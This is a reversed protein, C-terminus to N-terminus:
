GGNIAIMESYTVFTYGEAALKPVLLEVADASTDYIDHFLIVPNATLTNMVHQYTSQGNRFKWDLSDVSWLAIKMNTNSAITDNYSGYPPRLFSPSKGIVNKISSSASNINQLASTLDLQVLNPHSYSHNAVEHGAADIKKLMDPNADVKSGLVFWTGKANYKSLVDLIKKTSGYGPGDDFTLAVYKSGKPIKVKEKKNLNIDVDIIINTDIVADAKEVINDDGNINTKESAQNLSSIVENGNVKRYVSVALISTTILLLSLVLILLLKRRTQNRTRRKM